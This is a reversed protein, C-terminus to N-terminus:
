HNHIEGRGKAIIRIGASWSLAVVVSFLAYATTAMWMALANVLSKASLLAYITFGIVLFAVGLYVLTSTIVHVAKAQAVDM